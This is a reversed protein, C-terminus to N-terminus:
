RERPPPFEGANIALVMASLKLRGGKGSFRRMAESLYQGGATAIGAAVEDETWQRNGPVTPSTPFHLRTWELHQRKRYRRGTVDTHRIDDDM